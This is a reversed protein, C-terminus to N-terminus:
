KNCHIKGILNLHSPLLEIHAKDSPFLEGDVNYPCDNRPAIRVESVETGSFRKCDMINGASHKCLFQLLKIKGLKALSGMYMRKDDFRAGPMFVEKKKKSNRAEHTVIGFFCFDDLDFTSWASESICRIKSRQEELHSHNESEVIRDEKHDEEKHGEEKHDEDRNESDGLPVMPKYEVKCKYHKLRCSSLFTLTGGIAYKASKCLGRLKEAKTAIEGTIGWLLSTAYIPEDQKEFNIRMIDSPITHGRVINICADRVKRGGLDCVIANQTGCPLIGIPVKFLDDRKLSRGIANILQFFLGDGGVCIIDTYPFLKDNFQEVWTDVYTPSDTELIEYSIDASLLMPVLTKKVHHKGQRKGSVPNVLIAVTREKPSNISMLIEETKHFEQADEFYLTITKFDSYTITLKMEKESFTQKEEELDREDVSNSKMPKASQASDNKTVSIISDYDIVIDCKFKIPEPRATRINKQSKAKESHNDIEDQYVKDSICFLQKFSPQDRQGFPSEPPSLFLSYSKTDKNGSKRVNALKFSPLQEPHCLVSAFNGM